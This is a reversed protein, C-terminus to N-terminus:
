GGRSSVKLSAGLRPNLIHIKFEFPRCDPFICHSVPTRKTRIPTILRTKAQCISVAPIRSDDTWLTDRHEITWVPGYCEFLVQHCPATDATRFLPFKREGDTCLNVSQSDRIKQGRRPAIDFTRAKDGKVSIKRPLDRRFRGAFM